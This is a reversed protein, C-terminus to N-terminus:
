KVKKKVLPRISGDKSKIVRGVKVATGDKILQEAEALEMTAEDGPLYIKHYKKGTRSRQIEVYRKTFKVRQFKM